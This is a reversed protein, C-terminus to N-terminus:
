HPAKSAPRQEADWTQSGNCIVKPGDFHSPDPGGSGAGDQVSDIIIMSAGYNDEWPHSWSGDPLLLSRQGNFQRPDDIFSVVLALAIFVGFVTPVFPLEFERFM